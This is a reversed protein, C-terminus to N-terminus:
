PKADLAALLAAAAHYACRFDPILMNSAPRCEACAWDGDGPVRRERLSIWCGRLVAEAERVRAILARQEASFRLWADPSMAAIYAADTNLWLGGYLDTAGIVEHGPPGAFVAATCGSGDNHREAKSYRWPGPTAQSALEDLHDLDM